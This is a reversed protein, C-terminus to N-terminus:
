LEVEAPALVRVDTGTLLTPLSVREARWGRHTLIGRYPGGGQLNGTLKVSSADYDAPIQVVSGEEAAQVPALQVLQGLAKRCGQHIQRTAAGLDVDSVGSADEQLFDILRGERQFMALVQLAGVEPGAGASGPPTSPTPPTPQTSPAPPAPAPPTVPAPLAEQVLRARGAFGGDFLVRFFCTFAFWFRELFPLPPADM